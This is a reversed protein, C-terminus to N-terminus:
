YEIGKRAPVGQQAAHKVVSIETVTDAAASKGKGDGTSILIRSGLNTRVPSEVHEPLPVRAAPV